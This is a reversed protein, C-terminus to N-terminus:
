SETLLLILQHYLPHIYKIATIKKKAEFIKIKLKNYVKEELFLFGIM